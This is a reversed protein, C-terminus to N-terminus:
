DCDGTDYARTQVQNAAVTITDRTCGGFGEFNFLIEVNYTGPTVTRSASAGPNLSGIRPVGGSFIARLQLEADENHIM